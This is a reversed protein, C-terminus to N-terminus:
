KVSVENIIAKKGIWMVEGECHFYHFRGVFTKCPVNVELEAANQQGILVTRDANTETIAWPEGKIRSFNLYLYAV